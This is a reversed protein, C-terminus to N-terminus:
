LIKSLMVLICSPFDHCPTDALSHTCQMFRFRPFNNLCGTSLAETQLYADSISGKSPFPLPHSALPSYSHYRTQKIGHLALDFSSHQVKTTSIQSLRFQVILFQNSHALQHCCIFFQGRSPWQYRQKTVIFSFALSQSFGMLPAISLSFLDIFTPLKSKQKQINSSM